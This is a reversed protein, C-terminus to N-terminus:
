TIFTYFIAKTGAKGRFTNTSYQKEKLSGDARRQWFDKKVIM